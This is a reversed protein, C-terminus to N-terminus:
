VKGSSGVLEEAYLTIYDKVLMNVKMRREQLEFKVCLFFEM